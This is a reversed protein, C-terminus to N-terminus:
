PTGTELEATVTTVGGAPIPVSWTRTRADLSRGPVSESIVRTDKGLGAQRLELTVPTAKANRAEYTMSYRTRHPSASQNSVLTPKVTVDYSEGLTLTLDSGAPTPGIQSEGVLRARGSADPEFVRITGEPLPRDLNAGRNAFDVVVQAHGPEEASGFGYATWRLTQHAPAGRAELFGITRTQGDALSLRDPLHYVHTEGVAEMEPGTRKAAAGATMMMPRPAFVPGGQAVNGSVLDVSADEVPAGSANSVAFRGDLDLRGATPDFNAIYDARWSLGGTIYSLRAVHPGAKDAHLSANAIAVGLGADGFSEFVVRLDPASPSILDTHDGVGVLLGAGTQGLYTGQVTTEQGGPPTRVIRVPHGIMRQLLQNPDTVSAFAIEVDSIGEGSLALTEPRAQPPLGPLLITQAGATLDLPRDDQAFAQGQAYIALSLGPAPKPPAAAAVCPALMLGVIIVGSLRM